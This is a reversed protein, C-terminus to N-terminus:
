GANVVAGRAWLDPLTVLYEGATMAVVDVPVGRLRPDSCLERSLTFAIFDGQGL